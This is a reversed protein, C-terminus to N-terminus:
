IDKKNILERGFLWDISFPKYINILSYLFSTPIINRATEYHSYTAQDSNVKLALEKQTFNNEKRLCRLNKAILNLDIQADTFYFNRKTLGFLYDLSFKYYNAYEILRKIPITDIGTEWGSITSVSLNFYNAVDKQKINLIYERSNRLNCVIM